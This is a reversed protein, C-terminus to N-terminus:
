IKEITVKPLIEEYDEMVFFGTEERKAAACSMASARAMMDEVSLGDALSTAFGAIMTDGCGVTNVATIKPVRARFVGKDCVVVSGEGGLSVAVYRVGREHLKKAAGIVQDIDDCPLGTLMRIEDKNPKVLTPLAEVGKELLQGSTDLIVPKGQDKVIKVLEQYAHYDLGKPVSGSMSVVDAKSVLGKFHDKFSEFEEPKVTFGPELFETEKGTSEDFINICSRSEDHVHYFDSKVKFPILQEEIYKGAHGGTFGTALVDAGIIAAPKSVNLGKGGPYYSAEKVRNVEGVKYSEVVYRKDISANLTVTLLM